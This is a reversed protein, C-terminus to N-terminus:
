FPFLEEQAPEHKLMGTKDDQTPGAELNGPSSGGSVGPSRGGSVRGLRMASIGGSSPLHLRNRDKREMMRHLRVLLSRSLIPPEESAGFKRVEYSAGGPTAVGSLCKTVYGAGNLARDYVKVDAFGRGRGVREWVRKLIACGALTLPLRSGALLFHFHRRGGMEGVEERLVWVLSSFGVGVCKAVRFFYNTAFARAKRQPPVRGAFTLTGFFEWAPFRVILELEGHHM